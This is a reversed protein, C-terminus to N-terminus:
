NSTRSLTLSRHYPTLNEYGNETVHIVDELYTGGLEPHKLGPEVAIVNGAALEGARSDIMPPEHVDLGTHHASAPLVFGSDIPGDRSTKYGREEYVDCIVEHIRGARVGAGESLVDLGAKQARRTAEHLEVLESPPDGVVFTRTLNAHYKSVHHPMFKIMIPADAHLPGSGRNSLDCLETGCTVFPETVHHCDRKALEVRLTRKVQEATLPRGDAVLTRDADIDANRLLMEAAQLAETAAKQATTLLEVERETKGRRDEDLPRSLTTLDYGAAELRSAMQHPFEGSIGLTGVGHDELFERFVAAYAAEYGQETAKEQFDFEGLERVSDVDAEDAAAKADLPSFALLTTEGSARLVAYSRDISEFQTLYFVNSDSEDGIALFGDLEEAVLRDDLEM